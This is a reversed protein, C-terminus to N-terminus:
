LRAYVAKAHDYPVGAKALELGLRVLAEYAEVAYFRVRLRELDMSGLRGAATNHCGLCVTRTTVWREDRRPPLSQVPVFHLHGCVPCACLMDFGGGKVPVGAVGRRFVLNDVVRKM